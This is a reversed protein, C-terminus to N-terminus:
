RGSVEVTWSAQPSSSGATFDVSAQMGTPLRILQARNSSNFTYGTQIWNTGDHSVDLSASGAGLTGRVTIMFEGPGAIAGSRRSSTAATLLNKLQSM